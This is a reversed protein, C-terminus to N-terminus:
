YLEIEKKVNELFKNVSEESPIINKESINLHPITVKPKNLVLALQDLSEQYNEM